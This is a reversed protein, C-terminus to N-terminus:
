TVDACVVYIQTPTECCPQGEERCLCQWGNPTSSIPVSWLIFEKNMNTCECGGGLVKKHNSSCYAEEASFVKVVEYGSIGKSGNLGPPGEPGAPGIVGTDGKPGQLGQPGAPGIVGTDGKPGQLGAPGIDGRAGQAGTQACGAVFLVSLSILFIGIWGLINKEM